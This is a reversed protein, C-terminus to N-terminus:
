SGAAAERSPCRAAPGSRRAGARASRIQVTYDLRDMFLTHDRVAFRHMPVGRTRATAARARYVPGAEAFRRIQAAPAEAIHTMPPLILM